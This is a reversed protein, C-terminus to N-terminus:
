KSVMPVDMRDVSGYGEDMGAKNRRFRGVFYGGVLGIILSLIIWLWVLDKFVSDESTQNCDNGDNPPVYESPCENNDDDNGLCAIIQKATNQGDLYASHVYGYDFDSLAEGAFFLNKVRWKMALHDNDNFGTPWNSYSGGFYENENWRAVVINEPYPINDFYHSLKLDIIQKITDNINEYQVSNAIDLSLDFRWILSGEFAEINDLNYIWTFFGFRDDNLIIFDSCNNGITGNWFKEPWKVLIPTYDIYDFKLFSNVKWKPLVPTFEVVDSQLVGLSFTVLGYKATYENGDNTYVNVGNEDYEIELVASNLRIDLEDIDNAIAEIIGQYGRPDTIFLDDPGYQLYTQGRGGFIASSWKASQANFDFNVWEITKDITSHPSRWGCLYLAHYYSIDDIKTQINLSSRTLNQMIDYACEQASYYKSARSKYNTEDHETGGFDLVIGNTFDSVVFSINYKYAAELMPNMTYNSCNVSTLCAGSIWSAGINLMYNSFNVVKTRGGIYDEAELILINTINADHFTKAAAIGSSGAGMIIVDYQAYLANLMLSFCFVRFLAM